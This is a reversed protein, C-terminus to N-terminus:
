WVTQRGEADAEPAAGLKGWGPFTVIATCIDNPTAPPLDENGSSGAAGGQPSSMEKDDGTCGLISTTFAVALGVLGFTKNVNSARMPIEKPQTQEFPRPGVSVFGLSFPSM